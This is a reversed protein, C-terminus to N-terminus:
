GCKVFVTSLQQTTSYQPHCSTLEQKRNCLTSFQWFHIWIRDIWFTSCFLYTLYRLFCQVGKTKIMAAHYRKLIGYLWVLQKKQSCPLILLPSFNIVLGEGTHSAHFCILATSYLPLQLLLVKILTSGCLPLRLAARSNSGLDTAARWSSFTVSVDESLSLVAQHTISVEHCWHKLIRSGVWVLVKM